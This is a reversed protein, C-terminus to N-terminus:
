RRRRFITALPLLLLGAASPEPVVNYQLNPGFFEQTDTGTPKIGTGASVVGLYSTFANSRTTAGDSSGFYNEASPGTDSVLTYSQGATLTLPTGLAYFRFAGAISVNEISSPTTSPTIAISAIPSAGGDYVRLTNNGSLGNNGVDYVGLATVSVSSSGVTFQSGLSFTGTGGGVAFDFDFTYMSTAASLPACLCCAVILAVFATTFRGCRDM